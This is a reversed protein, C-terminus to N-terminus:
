LGENENSPGQSGTLKMDQGNTIQFIGLIVFLIGVIQQPYITEMFFISGFLISLLIILSLSIATTIGLPYKSLIYAGLIKNIFTFSLGAILLLLMILIETNGVLILNLLSSVKAFKLLVDSIAYVLSAVLILSLFFRRNM